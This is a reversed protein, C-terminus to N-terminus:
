LRDRLAFYTMGLVLGPWRLWRGGPFRRIPIRGFVDFRESSGRIAEAIVKGALHALAVGHGSYGQAFYVRPSLRGIHPMRNMTIALTGGWAYEIAVDALDPYLRLLYPRVFAAIDRPFGRRYNEGGGFLLRGDASTRFYDIVFRSDAAAVRRPNMARLREAGLPATAVIFNNIPMIRSALAPALAGLYGNTALVLHDASVTGHATRVRVKGNREEFGDVRSHEHIAVGIDLAHRAVGLALNLPHLHAADWDIYGGFFARTGLLAATAEADVKELNTAGYDGGLKDVLRHYDPVYRARHAVTAVGPTMDCDIALERVLSKVLDRSENGLAWLERALSQGLHAEMWDVDRRQGGTVQGGNRGSAGFGVRESELVVVRLGARRLFLASALGTYGAGVVCVDTTADGALPPLSPFPLASARYYSVPDHM